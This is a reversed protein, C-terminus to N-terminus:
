APPPPPPARDRWQLVWRLAPHILYGLVVCAVSFGVIWSLNTSVTKLAPLALVTAIAVPTGFLAITRDVKQQRAASAEARQEEEFRHTLDALHFLEELKGAVESRLSPVDLREAVGSHFDSYATIGGCDSFSAAARFRVSERVLAFLEARREAAMTGPALSAAWDSAEQSHGLLTERELLVQVTLLLYIGPLRPWRGKKGAVAGVMKAPWQNQDFEANGDGTSWSLAAIGERALGIRYNGYPELVAVGGAGAPAVYRPGLARTIRFLLPDLAAGEPREELVVVTQHRVYRSGAARPPPAAVEAPLALLWDVLEALGVGGQGRTAAAPVQNHAAAAESVEAYPAFTWGPLNTRTTDRRTHRIRDLREVLDEPAPAVKSEDAWDLRLVLVAARPALLFLDVHEIRPGPFATEGKSDELLPRALAQRAERSLALHRLSDSREGAFHARFAPDLEGLERPRREVDLWFPEERASPARASETRVTRLRLAAQVADVPQEWSFPLLLATRAVVTM